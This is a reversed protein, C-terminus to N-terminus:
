HRCPVHSDKSINVSSFAPTKLTKGVVILYFLTNATHCRILSFGGPLKPPVTAIRWGCSDWKTDATAMTSIEAGM